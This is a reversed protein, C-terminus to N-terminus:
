QWGYCKCPFKRDLDISFIRKRRALSQQTSHNGKPLEVKGNHNSKHNNHSSNSSNNNNNNHQNSCSSTVEEVKIKVNRDIPNSVVSDPTPKTTSSSPVEVALM